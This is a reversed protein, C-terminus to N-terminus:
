QCRQSFATIGSKDGTGLRSTKYITPYMVQSADDVHGLGLVHGLEHLYLNDLAKPDSKSKKAVVERKLVMVGGIIQNTSDMVFTPMGFGYVNSALLASAEAPLFSVAIHGSTPMTEARLHHTTSDYTMAHTGLHTFSLGSADSWKEFALALRAVEVQAVKPSLTSTDVSWTIDNACANWGSGVLNPNKDHFFSTFSTSDPALPVAYTASTIAPVLSALSAFMTMGLVASAFSRGRTSKPSTSAM